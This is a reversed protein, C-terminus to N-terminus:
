VPIGSRHREIWKLAAEVLPQGAGNAFAIVGQISTYAATRDGIVGSRTVWDACIDAVLKELFEPPMTGPREYGYHKCQSLIWAPDHGTVSRVQKIVENSAPYPEQFRAVSRLHEILVEYKDRTIDETKEFGYRKLNTKIQEDSLKLETKAIAWLRKRQGETIFSSSEIGASVNDAASKKATGMAGAEKWENEQAYKYARLDGKSQMFKIFANRNSSQEDLYSCIGFQECAVKFANRFARVPPTGIIKAKGEENTEPFTKDDGVGTRTVGCITLELLIVTYDGAINTSNIKTHWEGPCVENLHRTIAQHPIYFWRGGGPLKREKHDEPPFWATLKPLIEQLQM